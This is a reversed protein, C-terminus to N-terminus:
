RCNAHAGPGGHPARATHRCRRRCRPPPAIQPQWLRQQTRAPRRGPSPLLAPRQAEAGAGEDEDGGGESGGRAAAQRPAGCGGSGPRARRCRRTSRNSSRRPRASRRSPGHGVDRHLADIGAPASLDVIDGHRVCARHQVPHGPVLAALVIPRHEVGLLERQLALRGQIDYEAEHRLKQVRRDPVEVEHEPAQLFHLLIQGGQIYGEVQSRPQRSLLHRGQARLQADGRNDAVHGRQPHRPLPRQVHALGASPLANRQHLHVCVIDYRHPSCRVLLLHSGPCNALLDRVGQRRVQLVKRGQFSMRQMCRRRLIPRLLDIPGCRLLRQLHVPCHLGHLLKHRTGLGGFSQELFEARLTQGQKSVLAVVRVRICQGAERWIEM